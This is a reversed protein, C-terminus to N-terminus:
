LCRKGCSWSIPHPPSIPSSPRLSRKRRTSSSKRNAQAFCRLFFFFSPNALLRDFLVPTGQQGEVTVRDGPVSGEPPILLEVKTHDANSACLVMAASKIGRMAAPKLNTLLVVLKDQLDSPQLFKVLGSVVTRPAAEGVDITEVYLSDADPHKKVDVM